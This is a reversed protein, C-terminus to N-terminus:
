GIGRATALLEALERRMTALEAAHAAHPDAAIAEDFAELVHREGGRIQDMVDDDIGDLLARISVVARNVASMFSGDEEPAGGHARVLAALRGAHRAHLDRFAEAVPRFEPEAKGVMTEYGALADLTRTHLTALAEAARASADTRTAAM